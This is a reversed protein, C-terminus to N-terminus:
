QTFSTSQLKPMYKEDVSNVFQGKNGGEKRKRSPEKM